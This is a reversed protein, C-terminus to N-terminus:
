RIYVVAQGSFAATSLRGDPIVEIRIRREDLLQVVLLGAEQTGAAGGPDGTSQLRYVVVGSAPTIATFDPADPLVGWLGTMGFGGISVRQRDPFRVDRAFALQRTGTSSDGGSSFQDVPLDEAFWNGSLTGSVDYNFKGDLEGGERQM